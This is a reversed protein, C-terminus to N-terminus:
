RTAAGIHVLDQGVENRRTERRGLHSYEERAAEAAAASLTAVLGFGGEAAERAVHELMSLMTALQQRQSM